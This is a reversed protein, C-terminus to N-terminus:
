WGIHIGTASTDTVFVQFALMPHWIGAVLTVIDTTGDKYGVKVTGAVDVLIGRGPSTLKATDSPTVTESKGVFFGKDAM